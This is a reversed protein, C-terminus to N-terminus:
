TFPFSTYVAIFPYYTLSILLASFNKKRYVPLGAADTGNQVEISLSVANLVKNVAMYLVEMKLM